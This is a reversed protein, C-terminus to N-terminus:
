LFVPAQADKVQPNHPVCEPLSSPFPKSQRASVAQALSGEVDSGTTLFMNWADTDLQRNLQSIARRRAELFVGPEGRAGDASKCWTQESRHTAMETAPGHFIGQLVTLPDLVDGTGESYQVPATRSRGAKPARSFTSNFGRRTSSSSHLTSQTRL